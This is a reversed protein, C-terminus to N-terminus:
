MGTFLMLGVNLFCNPLTKEFAIKRLVTLFHEHLTDNTVFSLM